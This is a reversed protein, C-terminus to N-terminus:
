EGYITPFLSNILHQYLHRDRSMQAIKAFENKPLNEWISEATVNEGTVDQGEFQLYCVKKMVDEWGLM